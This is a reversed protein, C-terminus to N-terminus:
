LRDAWAAKLRDYSKQTNITTKAQVM